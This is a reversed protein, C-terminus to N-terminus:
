EHWVRIVGNGDTRDLRSRLTHRKHSAGIGQEGSCLKAAVRETRVEFHRTVRAICHVALLLTNHVAVLQAAEGGGLTIHVPLAVSM